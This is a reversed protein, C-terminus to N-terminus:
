MIYTPQITIPSGDTVKMPIQLDGTTLTTVTITKASNSTFVAPGKIVLKIDAAIYSGANNTCNLNCYTSIDEGEYKYSDYESTISVNTPVYPNIYEVETNVNSIFINESQDVGIHYPNNSLTDSIEFAETTVNFNMFICTAATACILFNNNRIGLFGRFYDSSVTSFNKFTLTNTTNDLLFTYIGYSSINAATSGAQIQYIAVNLYIKGDDTKNYFTEYHIYANTAFVPLQTITSGWTINMDEEVCINALTSQTTDFKYRTMVFKNTGSNHWLGFSYIESDSVELPASFNANFDITSTHATCPIVEVTATTKNYRKIITNGYRNKRAYYIHTDTEKLSRAESYTSMGEINTSKLTTKDVKVLYETFTICTMIYYVYNEDQGCYQKVMPNTTPVAGYTYSNIIEMSGNDEKIKFANQTNSRFDTTYVYSITPDYRDVVVTDGFSKGHHFISQNLVLRQSMALDYTNGLTPILKFPKVVLSSKNYYHGNVIYGEATEVIKQISGSINSSDLLKM